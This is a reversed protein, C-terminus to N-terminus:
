QIFQAQMEPINPRIPGQLQQDYEFLQQGLLKWVVYYRIKKEWVFEIVRYWNWTQELSSFKKFSKKPKICLIDTKVIKYIDM